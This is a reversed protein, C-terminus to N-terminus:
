VLAWGISCPVSKFSAYHRFHTGMSRFATDENGSCTQLFSEMEPELALRTLSTNSQLIDAPAKVGEISVSNSNKCRRLRVCHWPLCGAAGQDGIRNDHLDLEDLISNRKLAEALVIV